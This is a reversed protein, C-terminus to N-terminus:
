YGILTARLAAARTRIARAAARNGSPSTPVFYYVPPNPRSVSSPTVWVVADVADARAGLWDGLVEDATASDVPIQGLALRAQATLELEALGEASDPLARDTGPATGLIMYGSSTLRGSIAALRAAAADDYPPVVDTILLVRPAPSGARVAASAHTIDSASADDGLAVDFFGSEDDPLDGPEITTDSVAIRADADGRHSALRGVFVAGAAFVALAIVVGRNLGPKFTGGAHHHGSLRARARERVAAARARASTLQERAPRRPGTKADHAVAPRPAPADPTPFGPRAGALGANVGAVVAGVAQKAFRASKEAFDHASKPWEQASAAAPSAQSEARGTWWNTVRLNIRPNAPAASAASAAPTAPTAPTAPPPEASYRVGAAAAAAILPDPTRDVIPTFGASMSPLDAPRVAFPDPAALITELDALMADATAYRKDYDTMARRIVWKVADPCRKTIQSLVGHAPFSDEIVAYVVAGAAYIDFRTGDVEHVKVGKLALRVMEPDRFYETGHTTLTMASRLSSVLGFDVLHACSGTPCADVIINDPKVDKHWLGGRHYTSLTALLDRAYGLAARLQPRNLGDADGAAHLKKTTLSLSEGPVYRMVYYFREGTLDHDYILGLRKAADLSRSERVIQPLTSGEQLSFSKIVVQGVDRHGMRALAATKVPDPEAVYLKAGSGGGALSGIIRYGDFQGSRGRPLDASPAAAVVEPLRRELGDTVGGLGFLRLPHGIALRYLCKGFAGCEASLARGFHSSASWRGIIINLVIIPVYVVVLVAAGVLRAADTIEAAIFTFLQRFCWGIAKALPVLLFIVAFVGIVIAAVAALVILIVSEPGM